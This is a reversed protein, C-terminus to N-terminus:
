TNFGETTPESEAATTKGYQILAKMHPLYVEGIFEKMAM